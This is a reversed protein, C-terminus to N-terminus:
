PKQTEGTEPNQLAAIARDLDSRMWINWQQIQRGFEDTRQAAGTKTLHLPTDAFNRADPNAGLSDDRLVPMLPMIQAVIQANSQRFERLDNTPCYSWPLSYAVRIGNTQCWQSINSLLAKGDESLNPQHGAAGTMPIRVASECWGSRHFDRNQYRYLPQGRMWKGLMTFAFYGGPRLAAAAQFWTAQGMGLAPQLVWHPHHVAFSFQVGLAPEKGFPLTLLGPELGVILTDGRRLDSLASETLVVPGMGAHRGDNVVPERFNSLLREGDISFECSSGGYVVFKAGHERTMQDAWQRKIQYGYRYHTVEPNFRLTYFVCAAWSALATAVLLLARGPVKNFHSTSSDM